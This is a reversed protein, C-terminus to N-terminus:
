YSRRVEKVVGLITIPLSEVEQNTYFLPEFTPNLPQLTLGSEKKIVKKFTSETHNISVACFDGNECDDQQKLILTDGNRFEPYMSDGNVKLGFYTNGGRLMDSSIEEYDEIYSEDIMETPVGAPISGYIPIKVVNKDIKTKEINDWGMLYSTSVGLVKAFEKVKSSSVDALGLEIKNISTRSKYGMKIALEEQSLQKLTRVEKIRTGIGM